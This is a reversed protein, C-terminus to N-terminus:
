VGLMKHCTRCPEPPDPLEMRSAGPREGRASGIASLLRHGRARRLFRSRFARYEPNWWIADLPERFLNGFSIRRSRHERGCFRRPFEASVPPCLYVCPAVDGEVTVFANQLPDEECVATIRPSLPARRVALALERARRETEEVIDGFEEGGDCRFAKQEDQWADAVDILNTLVMEEVGKRHAVDPLGPM